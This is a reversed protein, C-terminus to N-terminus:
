ARDPHLWDVATYDRDPNIQENAVTFDRLKLDEPTEADINGQAWLMVPKRAGTLRKLLKANFDGPPLRFPDFELDPLEVEVWKRDVDNVIVQVRERSSSKFWDDIDRRLRVIGRNALKRLVHDNSRIKSEYGLFNEYQALRGGRPVGIMQATIILVPTDRNLEGLQGECIDVALQHGVEASAQGGDAEPINLDILIAALKTTSLAREAFERSGVVEVTVNRSRLNKALAKVTDPRDEVVLV